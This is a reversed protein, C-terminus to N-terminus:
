PLTIVQGAYALGGGFGLLLVPSGSPVEGRKVMKSLALPISAASTNGSEVIDCAVVANVAGLKAAVPEIIRMNAQHLVVAGLDAPTLGARACIRRAIDPLSTVAWRFVTQGAQAFTGTPTEIRVADSLQPLSGWVVPSVMPEDSTTLVVAGAGDGVLVCTSRDSWDTFDSLRESGVVIAHTASGTRIAQEAVALAHSFGACAVNIDLVAPGTLGLRKAVRAAINPSRDVATTTAVVVLDIDVTSLLTQEALAHEAARAAMDDVSETPDAIHRTEIGVRSRIWDDTTDVLSALDNNTLVKGPQYHGTSLVRAGTM